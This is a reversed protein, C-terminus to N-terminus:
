AKQRKMKKHHTLFALSGIIPIFLVAILFAIKHSYKISSDNALKVIAVICLILHIISLLNWIILSYDPIFLDM